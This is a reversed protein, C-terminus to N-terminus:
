PNGHDMIQKLFLTTLHHHYLQYIVVTGIYLLLATTALSLATGSTASAALAIANTTFLSSQLNSISAGQFSLTAM